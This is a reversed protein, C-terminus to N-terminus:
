RLEAELLSVLRGSGGGLVLDASLQSGGQGRAGDDDDDGAGHSASLRHEQLLELGSQEEDGARVLAVADRQAAEVRDEADGGRGLDVHAVDLDGLVDVVRVELAGSQVLAALVGLLHEVLDHLAALDGLRLLVVLLRDVLLEQLLDVGDGHQVLVDAREEGDGLALSDVGELELGRATYKERHNSTYETFYM